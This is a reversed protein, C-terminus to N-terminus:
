TRFQGSTGAESVLRAVFAAVALVVADFRAFGQLM